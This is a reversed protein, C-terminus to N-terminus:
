VLRILVISGGLMEYISSMCHGGVGDLKKGINDSTTSTKFVHKSQSNLSCHNIKYTLFPDDKKYRKKLEILKNNSTSSTKSQIVREVMQNTINEVESLRGAVNFM